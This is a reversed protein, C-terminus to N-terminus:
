LRCVSLLVGVSRRIFVFVCGYVNLACLSLMHVALQKKHMIVKRSRSIIKKLGAVDAKVVGCVCVCMAFVCVGTRHPHTQNAENCALEGVPPTRM